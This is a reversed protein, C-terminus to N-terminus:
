ESLFDGVIQNFLTPAEFYISHGCEPVVEFKSGRVIEHVQKIIEPPTIRDDSGVLFLTPIGLESVEIRTPADPNAKQIARPPNLDFIQRYLFRGAPNEDRFKKGLARTTLPANSEVQVAQLETIQETLEPWFFFGWTDAMVLTDVREPQRVSFGLASRGGMSQAILVTREIKLYDLLAELDDVFRQNGIGSPDISRGFGRHDISICRYRERFHPIQQWWSLHNGGAGHLFIISQEQENPNQEDYFLEIDNISAFPM